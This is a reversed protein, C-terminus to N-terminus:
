THYLRMSWHRWGTPHFQQGCFLSHRVSDPGVCIRGVGPEWVPVWRM